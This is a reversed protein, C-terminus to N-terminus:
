EEVWVKSSAGRADKAVISFTFPKNGDKRDIEFEEIWTTNSGDAARLNGYLKRISTANGSLIALTPRNSERDAAYFRVVVRMRTGSADRKVDRIEPPPFNRIAIPISAGERIGDIIREFVWTKGTDRQTPKVKISGQTVSVIERESDRIIAKVNDLDPLRSDFSYELGPYMVEPIKIAALPQAQVSFTATRVTGDKRKATIELTIGSSRPAKGKIYVAHQDTNIYREIEGNAEGSLVRVTPLGALDTVPDAGGMSIRNSWERTALLTIKERAPEIWFEGLQQPQGQQTASNVVITDVGRDSVQIITTTSAGVNEVITSAVFQAAGQLHVVESASHAPMSGTAHVTVRLTRAIGDSQKPKWRFRIANREPQPEISFLPSPNEPTVIISQGTEIDEVVAKVRLNELESSYRVINISDLTTVRITGGSDKSLKYVLRVREPQMDLRPVQALAGQGSEPNHDPLLLVLAVLYLIFYIEVRRRPRAPASM